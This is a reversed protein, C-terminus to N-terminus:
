EVLEKMRTYDALKWSNRFRRTPPLKTKPIILFSPRNRKAGSWVYQPVDKAFIYEHAEQFTMAPAVENHPRRYDVVWENEIGGNDIKMRARVKPAEIQSVVTHQGDKAVILLQSNWHAEIPCHIGGKMLEGICQGSPITVKMPAKGDDEYDCEWIAVWEPDKAEIDDHNASIRMWMHSGRNLHEKRQKRYEAYTERQEKNLFEKPNM